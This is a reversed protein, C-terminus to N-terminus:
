RTLSISNLLADAIAQAVPDVGTNDAEGEAGCGSMKIGASTKFLSAYTATCETEGDAEQVRVMACSTLVLILLISLLAKM